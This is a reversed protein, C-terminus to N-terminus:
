EARAFARILECRVNSVRTFIHRMDVLLQARMHVITAIAAHAQCNVAASASALHERSRGHELHPGRACESEVLRHL